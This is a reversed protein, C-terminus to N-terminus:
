KKYRIKYKINKLICLFKYEFFYLLIKYGFFNYWIYNNIDFM